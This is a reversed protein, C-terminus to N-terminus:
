IFKIGKVPSRSFIWKTIILAIHTLRNKWLPNPLLGQPKIMSSAHELVFARKGARSLVAAVTLGGIGSSIVIDDLSKPVKRSASFKTQPGSKTENKM